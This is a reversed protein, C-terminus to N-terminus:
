WTNSLVEVPAWTSPHALRADSSHIMALQASRVARAPSAGTRLHEHVSLFLPASVDDDIEWLTGIVARAGALLFARALSPVGAVHLPNGRLTGCAALVVVPRNELSLRSIEGSGLIGSDDGKPTCILAAYSDGADSDAHGAFHIMASTRAEEIFRARTAEQGRILKAGYANAITEAEQHSAPLRAWHTTLPDAIVLAPQLASATHQTQGAAAPALRITVEETLYQGRAKDYLAAFPVAHLERDAVIVIEDVNALSAQVPAILLRYLADGSADIEQVPARRRLTKAFTAIGESLTASEIKVTKEVVGDSTICFIAIAHPLLAYEILAVGRGIHPLAHPKMSLSAPQFERARDAIGFADAARNHSLQLEISEDVIQGAIDIFRLRLDADNVTQRQTEVERLASAYDAAAANDDGAASFARARQLYAEPLLYNLRGAAFISISQGIAAIAARPERVRQLSADAFEIQASLTDRLSPDTVRRAAARAEAVSKAGVDADGSRGALEARSELAAALQAPDGRRDDILIEILSAAAESHGFATLTIAAGHVIAGLQDGRASLIPYARIRRAWALDAEGIMDLSYAAIADVFGANFTEGLARFTTVASAASREASGYDGAANDTVALEWQIEAALALYRKRNIASFLKSLADHSATGRRQDFATSGAYYRAVDAMPSGGREFLEAARLFKGEAVGANRKQYDLRAERYLLHAARLTDLESGGAHDIANVADMLLCEGKASALSRGIARVETLTTAARDSDGTTVADAWEALLLAEAWTRAEQPFERVLKDAPVRGIMKQDFRVSTPELAHLHARAEVAWASGPDVQLYRHWAKRAQETIGLREIILARNFLAEPLTPDLRLAHDADALAEPLQSPREDEVAVAYRAAALDNWVHADSSNRAAQELAAISDNRRSILLFAVGTAHRAEPQHQDATKELVEGVAGAVKLDAPDPTADGRSPAQLRAWRFGSLRAAVVRHDHPAVAILQAILSTDRTDSHDSSTSRTANWRLIPATIAVAAVLAAVALLWPRVAHTSSSAPEESEFRATEAVVTRCDSCGRLHEAIVATEAPALKGEVFAAMIQDEPHHPAADNM